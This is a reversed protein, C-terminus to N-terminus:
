VFLLWDVFLLAACSAAALFSAAIVRRVSNVLAVVTVGVDRKVKVRGAKESEINWGEGGPVEGRERQDESGGEGASFDCEARNLFSLSQELSHADKVSAIANLPGDPGNVHSQLQDQEQVHVHSQLQDQEPSAPSERVEERVPRQLYLMLIVIMLLLVIAALRRSWTEFLHELKRTAPPLQELKRRSCAPRGSEANSFDLVAPKMHRAANCRGGSAQKQKTSAGSLAAAESAHRSPPTNKAEHGVEWIPDRLRAGFTYAGDTSVQELTVEHINAHNVSTAADSQMSVAMGKVRLAHIASKILEPCVHLGRIVAGVEEERLERNNKSLQM